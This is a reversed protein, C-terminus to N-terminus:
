IKTQIYTSGMHSGRLTFNSTSFLGIHGAVKFYKGSDNISIITTKEGEKDKSFRTKIIVTQGVTIRRGYKNEFTTM